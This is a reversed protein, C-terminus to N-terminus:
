NARTCCREFLALQSMGPARVMRVDARADGRRAGQPHAGRRPGYRVGAHRASLTRRRISLVVLDADAAADKASVGPM